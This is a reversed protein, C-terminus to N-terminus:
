NQVEPRATITVPRGKWTVAGTRYRHGSVVILVAEQLVLYPWLLAAIVWGHKWLQKAYLGYLGAFAVYLAAAAIHIAEFPVFLLSALVAVPILLLLLDLVAFISLGPQSHLLPYLLRISTMAQSHWKKEYSIGLDATGLLFRYQGAKALETAITTEPQIATKLPEFGGLQTILTERHVLWANSAVAPKNRRHFILEWFFRLPSFLVSARWGDERRPFVSVMKSEEELSYRVLKEIAGPDIRTDVSMYLIYSGSAEDLLGQLAHNKGMWGEPPRKGAVFRVGQSAFSKVLASTNDGSVDDFVIVELKPYTSALVADLCDALM